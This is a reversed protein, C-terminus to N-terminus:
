VCLVAKTGTSIIILQFTSWERWGGSSMSDCGHSDILKHVALENSYSQPVRAREEKKHKKRVM